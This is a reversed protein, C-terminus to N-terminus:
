QLQERIDTYELDTEGLFPALKPHNKLSKALEFQRRRATELFRAQRKQLVAILFNQKIVYQAHEDGQKKSRSQHQDYEFERIKNRLNAQETKLRNDILHEENNLREILAATAKRVVEDAKEQTMEGGEPPFYVCLPDSADLINLNDKNADDDGIKPEPPPKDVLVDTKEMETFLKRHLTIETSKLKLFPRAEEETRFQIWQVIETAISQAEQMGKDCIESLQFQTNKLTWPDIKPPNPDFKNLHSNFKKDKETDKKYEISYQAISHPEHHFVIKMTGTVFDFAVKYVSNAVAYTDHYPSNVKSPHIYKQTMREIKPGSQFLIMKTASTSNEPVIKLKRRVLGDDRNDFYEFIYQGFIEKRTKLRDLRIVPDFQILRWKEHKIHHSLIGIPRPIDAKGAKPDEKIENPRLALISQSEFKEIMEEEPIFIRRHILYQRLSQFYERIQYINSLEKEFIFYRSVLGDPRTYPAHLEELADRWLFRKEADPYKEFVLKEPVELKEVIPSPLKSSTDLVPRWLESASFDMTDETKVFDREQLNIWVNKFNFVLEIGGFNTSTIPFQDGTAPDIFITSPVDLRASNVMVWAFLRRGEYPDEPPDPAYPAPPPPAPPNVKLDDFGSNLNLLRGVVAKVYKNDPINSKEIVTNDEICAPCPRYRLDCLTIERNAYGVVVYADYGIGCLITTLLVSLDYIDGFQTQITFNPTSILTPPGFSDFLIQYNCLNAVFHCANDVTHTELFKLATPRILSSLFAKRGDEIQVTLFIKMRYPFEKWFNILYDDIKTLFEEYESPHTKSPPELEKLEFFKGIKEDKPLVIPNAYPVPFFSQYRYSLSSSVNKAFPDLASTLDMTVNLENEIIPALETM